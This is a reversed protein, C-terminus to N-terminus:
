LYTDLFRKVASEYLPANKFYCGAHGAGDVIVMEKPAACADYVTKSMVPPVYIDESGHIFLTPISSRTVADKSNVAWDYGAFLTTFMGAIHLIPFPPLKFVTRMQLSLVDKPATFGSDSIICKVNKLRGASALLAATAGVSIGHLIIKGEPYKENILNIWKKIDRSDLIGFGLFRGDSGDHARLNVLLINYNMDRYFTSVPAFDTIGDSTYGHLCIVTVSSEGPAKYFSGSLSVGDAATVTVKESPLASLELACSKNYELLSKYDKGLVKSMSVFKFPKHRYVSRMFTIFGASLYFLIILAVAGALSLGVIYIVRIGHLAEYVNDMM